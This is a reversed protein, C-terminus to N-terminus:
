SIEARKPDPEFWYTCTEKLHPFFDKEDFPYIRCATPKRNHIQCSVREGSKKLFPCKFYTCCCQGCGSCYGKRKKLSEFLKKKRFIYYYRRRIQTLVASFFYKYSITM